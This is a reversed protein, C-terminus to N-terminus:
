ARTEETPEPDSTDAPDQLERLYDKTMTLQFLSAATRNLTEAREVIEPPDFAAPYTDFVDIDVLYSVAGGAAQDAFPGHRLLAGQTDGLALEVQQLASRVLRGFTPNTVAGFLSPDIRGTWAEPTHADRDVFRDIYRLGIRTVAGPELGAAITDAVIELVPRLTVSWREYRTTQIAVARPMVTLHASGDTAHLQWGQSVEQTQPQADGGPMVAFEVRNEHTPALAAFPRGQEALLRRMEVAVAVPVASVAAEFRVELIALDLPPRALLTRDAPPLGALPGSEASQESM